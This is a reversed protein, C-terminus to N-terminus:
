GLAAFRRAGSDAGPNITEDYRKLRGLSVFVRTRGGSGFASRRRDPLRTAASRLEAYHQNLNRLAEELDERFARMRADFEDASKWPSLNGRGARM